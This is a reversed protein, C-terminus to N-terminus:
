NLESQLKEIQQDLKNGQQLLSEKQNKLSQLLQEKQKRDFNSVTDKVTDLLKVLKAQEKPTLTEMKQLKKHAEKLYKVVETAAQQGLKKTRM